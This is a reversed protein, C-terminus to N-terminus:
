RRFNQIQQTCADLNGSSELQFSVLFASLSIKLGLKYLSAIPINSCDPHYKFEFKILKIKSFWIEMSLQDKLSKIQYSRAQVCLKGGWWVRKPMITSLTLPKFISIKRIKTTYKHKMCLIFGKLKSNWSKMFYTHWFFLQLKNQRAAWLLFRYIRLIHEIKM